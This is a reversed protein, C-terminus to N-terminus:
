HRKLSGVIALMGIKKGVDHRFYLIIGLYIALRGALDVLMRTVSSEHGIEACLTNELVNIDIRHVVRCINPMNFEGPM